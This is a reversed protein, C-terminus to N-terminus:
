DKSIARISSLNAMIIDAIQSRNARAEVEVLKKGTKDLYNLNRRAIKDLKRLIRTREAKVYFRKSFQKYFQNIANVPNKDLGEYKGSPLLSFTPNSLELIYYEPDELRSEVEKLMQWQQRPPQHEYGEMRLYQEVVKGFTPYLSRRDYGSKIFEDYTRRIPRDLAVLSLGRDRELSNKFLAIPRTNEYLILNSQAGFMKFLISFTGMELLFCRENQYRVIKRVQHGLAQTFINASNKRSRRFEEPFILINFDQRLIAQIFFYSEDKQFQLILEDRDQSFCSMLTSGQIKGELEQVLSRLFYYNTHM